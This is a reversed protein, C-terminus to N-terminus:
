RGFLDAQKGQKKTIPVTFRSSPPNRSFKSGPRTRPGSARIRSCANPLRERKVDERKANTGKGSNDAGSHSVVEGRDFLFPLAVPQLVLTEGREVRRFGGTHGLNVNEIHEGVGAPGPKVHSM